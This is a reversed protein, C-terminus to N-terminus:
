PFGKAKSFIMNIIGFETIAKLHIKIYKIYIKLLFLLCDNIAQM